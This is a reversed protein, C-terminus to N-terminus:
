LTGRCPGSPSKRSIFGKSTGKEVTPGGEHIIWAHEIGLVGPCYQRKSGVVTSERANKESGQTEQKTRQSVSAGGWLYMDQIQNQSTEVGKDNDFPVEEGNSKGVRWEFFL